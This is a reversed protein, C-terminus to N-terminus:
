LVPLKNVAERKTDDEIHTYHRSIEPSEHGIIDRAVAEGVGAMKLLSTATHRLCHFSLDVSERRASRGKGDKRKKKQVSEKALPAVLGVGALLERFATSLASTTGPTQMAAFARPHLPANPDDGARAMLMVKLPEAMPVRTIRDTKRSTYTIVSSELEVNRWTMLAIDGLRAGTYFGILILSRWEDDCAALLTKLEPLTFARRGTKAAKSEYVRLDKGTVISRHMVGDAEAAILIMKVVKLAGKVTSPSVRALMEDRYRTVDAKQLASMDQDAKGGLSAVFERGVQQYKLMTSRAVSARNAETWREVFARTSTEDIGRGQTARLVEDFSRRAIRRTDLDELTGLFARVADLNKKGQAADELEDAIRRALRKDSTGTSRKWQVRRSGVIGTICAVFNETREDNWLSAM